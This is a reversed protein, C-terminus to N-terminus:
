PIERSCSLLRFINKCIIKPTQLTIEMQETMSYPTYSDSIPTEGGNCSGLFTIALNAYVLIANKDRLQQFSSEKDYPYKTVLTGPPPYFYQEFYWSTGLLQLFNKILILTRSFISTRSISRWGDISARTFSRWGGVALRWGGVALRWGGDAMRWGGDAMRWGGVAMRWGGVALRWGGIAVRRFNVVFYQPKEYLPPVV